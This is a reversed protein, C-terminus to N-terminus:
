ESLTTVLSLKGGSVRAVYFRHVGNRGADFTYDAMAGPFAKMYELGSKVGARTPGGTRIAEALLILSDYYQAAIVNADAGYQKRYAANWAKTAPGQIDPAYETFILAGDAASGAEDFVRKVGFDRQGIVQAPVGSAKLQKFFSGGEPTEGLALIAQPQSAKVQELQSAFTRDGPSWTANVLPVIDYKAKLIGAILEARQNHIGTKDHLIALSKLKLENVMYRTICDALLADSAGVRFIWPSQITTKPSSGATLYPIGASDVIPASALVFPSNIEGAIAVIQPDHILKDLAKVAGEPTSEDDSLVLELKPGDAPARSNVTDVAMQLGNLMLRGVSAREGSIPLQVGIKLVQPDAAGAYDAILFSLALAVASRRRKM